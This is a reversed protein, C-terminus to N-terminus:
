KKVDKTVEENGLYIWQAVYWVLFIGRFWKGQHQMEYVKRWRKKSHWWYYTIREEVNKTINQLSGKKACFNFFCDQKYKKISWYWVFKCKGDSHGQAVCSPKSNGWFTSRIAGVFFIKKIVIIRGDCFFAIIIKFCMYTATHLLSCLLLRKLINYLIWFDLFFFTGSLYGTPRHPFFSSINLLACKKFFQLLKLFVGFRRHLCPNLTACSM